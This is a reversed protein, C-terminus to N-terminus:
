TTAPADARVPERATAPEAPAAMAQRQQELLRLVAWLPPAMLVKDGSTSSRGPQGPAVSTNPREGLRRLNDQLAPNLEAHPPLSPAIVVPARTCQLAMLVPTNAAGAAMRSIFDMGAPYVAVADPWDALRVHLASTEPQDPWVDAIVERSGMVTLGERSVFREASRTLALQVDLDPYNVHLWNMWFPLHMVALAGTGVILLREAGLAPAPKKASAGPAAKASTGDSSM